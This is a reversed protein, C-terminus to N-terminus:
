QYDIKLNRFETFLRWAFVNLIENSKIMEFEYKYLYAIYIHM